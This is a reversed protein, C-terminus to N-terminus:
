DLLEQQSFHNLFYFSSKIVFSQLLIHTADVVPYLVSALITTAFGYAFVIPMSIVALITTAYPYTLM